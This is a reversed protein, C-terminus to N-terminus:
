ENVVIQTTPSNTYRVGLKVLGSDKIMSDAYKLADPILQNGTDRATVSFRGLRVTENVEISDSNEVLAFVMWAVWEKVADSQYDALSDIDVKWGDVRSRNGLRVDLLRSARKIRQETADAPDGGTLNGYDIPTIYM